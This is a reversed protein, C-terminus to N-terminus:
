ACVGEACISISLHQASTILNNWVGGIKELIKRYKLAARKAMHIPFIFFCIWNIISLVSRESTLPVLIQTRLGKIMKKVTDPYENVEDSRVIGNLISRYFKYRHYEWQKEIETNKKIWKEKQLELSRLGCLNSELYFKRMASEPNFTQHYVKKTGIYVNEVYQLVEINFLMGEGYWIDKNFCINKDILLERKYIKNWVAVDTKGSYIGIIGNEASTLFEEDEKSANDVRHFYLDFAVETGSKVVLDLFYSVYEKDVWDDGDVFMVYDGNAYSLGNNRAESVGRNEQHIVLIRSDSAAYADAIIGSEDPSGDDVLIIEINEYDQEMLSKICRDIYKQVNYIPVIISVLVEEMKVFEGTKIRNIGKM